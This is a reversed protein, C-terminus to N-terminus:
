YEKGIVKLFHSKPTNKASKQGIPLIKQLKKLDSQRYFLFTFCKRGFKAQKTECKQHKYEIDAFIGAIKFNVQRYIKFFFISIEM